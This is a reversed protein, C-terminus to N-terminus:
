GNKSSTLVILAKHSINKRKLVLLTGMVEMITKHVAPHGGGMEVGLYDKVFYCYTRRQIHKLNAFQSYKKEEEEKMTSHKVGM